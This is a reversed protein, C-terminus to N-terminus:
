HTVNVKSERTHYWIRVCKISIMNPRMSQIVSYQGELVVNYRKESLQILVIGNSFLVCSIVKPAIMKDMQGTLGHYLSTFISRTFCSCLSNIMRYKRWHTLINIM